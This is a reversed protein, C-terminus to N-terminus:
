VGRPVKPGVPSIIESDNQLTNFYNLNRKSYTNKIENNRFKSNLLKQVYIEASIPTVKNLDKGIYGELQLNDRIANEPNKVETNKLSMIIERTVVGGELSEEYKTLDSTKKEIDNRLVDKRNLSTEDEKGDLGKLEKQDSNISKIQSNYKRVEEKALDDITKLVILDIGTTSLSPHTRRPLEADTIGPIKTRTTTM